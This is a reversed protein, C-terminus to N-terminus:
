LAQFSYSNPATAMYFSVRLPYSGRFITFVISVNEVSYWGYSEFM